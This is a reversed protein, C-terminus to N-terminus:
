GQKRTAEEGQDREVAGALNALTRALDDPTMIPCLAAFKPDPVRSWDYTETVETGDQFERLQYSYTHGGTRIAALRDVLACPFSTDLTPAWGIRTPPEFLVVTNVTRYHGLDDRFMNVVFSQDAAAIPSSASGQLMDSGDIETHRAPDALLAFIHEAPAHIFRSVQYQKADTM